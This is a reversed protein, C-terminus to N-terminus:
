SNIWLPISIVVKFLDGDIEINFEGKQLTTLSEAISLGLGSGETTRSKDGRVFRQILQEPSINLSTKSINKITLIGYKDNKQMNIYVRSNELSYKLINSYVNQVIRWMYKGDADILIQNESKEVIFDLNLKKIDEEYEGGAQDILEVLDLKELKVPLNGSSAKSAEVLDEILIKLRKSKEDLINIYAKSNEDQLNQKKLLDVYTVISTLPTKLDHSVNTILDIKMKEGKIENEVAKKLGQQINEINNAVSLYELSMNSKDIKYDLDGDSIEKTGTIIQHLSSLRKAVFILAILNFVGAIIIFIFTFLDDSNFIITLLVYNILSYLLLLVLIYVKYFGSMYYKQFISDKAIFIKYILTNKLLCRKKIQRCFSLVYNIGIFIDISLVISGVLLFSWISQKSEYYLTYFGIMSIFGIICLAITFIDFNFKDGFILYKEDKEGENGTRLILFIFAIVFIILSIISIITALEVNKIRIDIERSKAYFIDGPELPEVIAAYVQYPENVLMTKIEDYYSGVEEYYVETQTFYSKIKQEKIVEIPNEVKVNTFSKGTDTNLVYYKFNIMNPLKNKIRNLRDLKNIQKEEDSISDIIFDENKLLVNLEVINHVLITFEEKFEYTEFYSNYNFKNQSVYFSSFIVIVFSIWVLIVAVIKTIKSEKISKLKTGM